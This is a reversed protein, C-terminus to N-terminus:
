FRELHSLFAMEHTIAVVVVVVEVMPVAVAAALLLLVTLLPLVQQYKGNAIARM